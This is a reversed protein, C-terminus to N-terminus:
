SSESVPPRYPWVLLKKGLPGGFGAPVSPMQTKEWQKHDQITNEYFFQGGRGWFYGRKSFGLMLQWLVQLGEAGAGELAGDAPLLQRRQGM